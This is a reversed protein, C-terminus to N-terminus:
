ARNYAEGILGVDLREAKSNEDGVIEQFVEGTAIGIHIPLDIEKTNNDTTSDFISVNPYYTKRKLGLLSKRSIITM